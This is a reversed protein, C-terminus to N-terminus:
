KRKKTSTKTAKTSQNNLKLLLLSQLLAWIIINAMFVFLALIAVLLLSQGLSYNVLGIVGAIVLAVVCIVAYTHQLKQRETTQNNWELLVKSFAEIM